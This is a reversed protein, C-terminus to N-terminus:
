VFMKELLASKINKLKEVQRQHLTILNDTIILGQAIKVQEAYSPVIFGMTLFEDYSISRGDRIGYTVTELRRVFEESSFIYKWFLDYQKESPKFGFITYAPSTIGEINSHAFGGQFSRLHIVFQGPLVRKYGVENSKDHFVSKGIEDRKVMGADQTASLVPLEPHGKDAYSDFLERAKCQEWADTFGKFRIRPVKEDGQPFMKELLAKKINVFKEYKRQHLTILNDISSLYGSIKQQEAKDPVFVNIENLNKLIITAFTGTAQRNRVERQFFGSSLLYYLYEATVIKNPIIGLIGQKTAVPIHNIAVNGVTAGNTFIVSGSPILWASSHKLGEETIFTKVSDIYKNETDEIRVFPITGNRYYAATNTDPTGGESAFSYVEAFKCQEWADTFGKFRIQPKMSNKAM